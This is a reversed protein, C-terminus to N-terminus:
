LTCEDHFAVFLKTKIIYAVVTLTEDRLYIVNTAEDLDLLILDCKVENLTETSTFLVQYQSPLM